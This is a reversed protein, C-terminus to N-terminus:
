NKLLWIVELNRYCEKELRRSSRIKNFYGYIYLKLLDQPAYPPRGTDKLVAREFGLSTMDLSDVFADIVRVPHDEAVCDDIVAPLMTIQARDQGEIYKM